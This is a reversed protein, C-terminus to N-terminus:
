VYGIPLYGSDEPREEYIPYWGSRIMKLYPEPERQHEIMKDLLTPLLRNTIQYASLIASRRPEPLKNLDLSFEYPFFFFDERSPEIQPGIRFNRAFKRHLNVALPLPRKPKKINNILDLLTKQITKKNKTEYDFCDYLEDMSSITWSRWETCISNPMVLFPKEITVYVKKGELFSEVLVVTKNRM